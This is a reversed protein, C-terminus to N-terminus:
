KSAMNVKRIMFSIRVGGGPRLLSIEHGRPEILPQFKITTGTSRILNYFVGKMILMYDIIGHM